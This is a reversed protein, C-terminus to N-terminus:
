ENEEKVLGGWASRSAQNDELGREKLFAEYNERDMKIIKANFGNEKLKSFVRFVLSTHSNLPLPWDIIMDKDKEDYKILIIDEPKKGNEAVVKKIYKVQKKAVNELKDDLEFLVKSAKADVKTKGAEWGEITQRSLGLLGECDEITLGCKERLTKFESGSIKM